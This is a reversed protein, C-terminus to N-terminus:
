ALHGARTVLEEGLKIQEIISDKVEGIQRADTEVQGIAGDFLGSLGRLKEVVAARDELKKEQDEASDEAEQAEQKIDELEKLDDGVEDSLEEGQEAIQEMKANLSEIIAEKAEESIDSSEIETRADLAQQKGTELKELQGKKAAISQGKDSVKQRSKELSFNAM